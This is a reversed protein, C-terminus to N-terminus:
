IGVKYGFSEVTSKIARQSKTLFVWDTSDGDVKLGVSSLMAKTIILRSDDINKSKRFESFIDRDIDTPTRFFLFNRISAIIKNM